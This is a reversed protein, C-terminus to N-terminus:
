RNARVWARLERFRIAEYMVLGATLLAVLLISVNAPVVTGVPILACLVLGVVWRQPNVTHLNRWRFAAHGMLYFAVGGFFTVVCDREVSRWRFQPGEENRARGHHHRRRHGPPHLQVFRPGAREPARGHLKACGFSVSSRWWTSTCGGCVAVIVFVGLAAAFVIEGLHRDHSAAVGLAVLSEGLAIIVILGHREAFHAPRVQWGARERSRHRGRVHHALAVAWLSARVAGPDLFGAIAILVPALLYM